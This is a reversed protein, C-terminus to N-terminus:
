KGKTKDEFESEDIDWEDGGVVGEHLSGGTYEPLNPDGGQIKDVLTFNIDRGESEEKLYDGLFIEIVIVILVVSGISFGFIIFYLFPNNFIWLRGITCYLLFFVLVMVSFILSFIISGYKDKLENM